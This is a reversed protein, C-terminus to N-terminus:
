APVPLAEYPLICHGNGPCLGSYWESHVYGCDYCNKTYQFHHYSGSHYNNGNYTLPSFYHSETRVYTYYPSYIFTQEVTNYFVERSWVEHTTATPNIFIYEDHDHEIIEDEIPDLVPTDLEEAFSPTKGFGLLIICITLIIILTKKM